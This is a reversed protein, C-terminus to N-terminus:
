YKTWWINNLVKCENLCIRNKPTNLFCWLHKISDVIACVKTVNSSSFLYTSLLLWFFSTMAQRTPYGLLQIFSSGKLSTRNIDVKSSFLCNIFLHYLKTKPEKNWKPRTSKLCFLMGCSQNCTSSYFINLQLWAFSTSNISLSRTTFYKGYLSAVRSSFPGTVKQLCFKM